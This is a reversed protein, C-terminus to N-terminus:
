SEEHLLDLTSLPENDNSPGGEERFGLTTELERKVALLNPLTKNLKDCIGWEKESKDKKKLLELAQSIQEKYAILMEQEEDYQIEMLEEIAKNVKEIKGAIVNRANKDPRGTDKEMLFGSMKAAVEKRQDMPINRLPTKYDFVLCIWKAERSSCKPFWEFAAVTPNSEFFDKDKEVKFVM